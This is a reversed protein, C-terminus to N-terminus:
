KLKILERKAEQEISEKYDKPNMKLCSEFYERSKPKDKLKEYILGLHLASNAAFYYTLDSGIEITKAHYYKAMKWNEKAEYARAKRYVYEVKAKLPELHTSDMQSLRMLSSDFYGGDFLLRGRLLDKNGFGEMAEHYAHKDRESVLDEGSLKVRTLYINAQDGMGLLYYIWAIRLQDDVLFAKGKSLNLFNQFHPIASIGDLRNLYTFGLLYELIPFNAYNNGTPRFLLIQIAEDNRYNKIAMSAKVYVKLLSRDDEQSLISILESYTSHSSNLNASLYSFYLSEEISYFSLSSKRVPNLNSEMKSLGKEIDGTLGLPGLSFQLNTPLNGLITEILGIYSDNLIFDPYEMKNKKIETFARRLEFAAAWYDQFKARILASQLHIKSKSFLFLPSNLLSEKDIIDIDQVCIDKFEAYDKPDLSTFVRIFFADNELLATIHNNPNLKQEQKILVSASNLEVNWIKQYALICNQTFVLNGRVTSPFTISALFTILSFIKLLTHKFFFKQAKNRSYFFKLCPISKFRPLKKFWRKMSWSEEM